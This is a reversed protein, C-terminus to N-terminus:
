WADVEQMEKLSLEPYMTLGNRRAFEYIENSKKVAKNWNEASYPNGKVLPVSIEVGGIVYVVETYARHVHFDPYFPKRTECLQKMIHCDKHYYRQYGWYSFAGHHSGLTHRHPVRGGDAEIVIESTDTGRPIIKGCVECKHDKRTKGM